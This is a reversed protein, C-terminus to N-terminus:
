TAGAAPPQATAVGGPQGPPTRPRARAGRRWPSCFSPTRTRAHGAKLLERREDADPLRMDKYVFYDRVLLVRARMEAVRSQPIAKLTSVLSSRLGDEAIRVSFDAYDFGLGAAAFAGEFFMESEDQVIVPICGHVVADLVRSSWGDGPFALCFTHDLLYAHYKGGAHLM